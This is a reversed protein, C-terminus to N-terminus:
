LHDPDKPMAPAGPRSSTTSADEKTGGSYGSIVDEVGDMIEFVSRALLRPSSPPRRARLRGDIAPDPFTAASM